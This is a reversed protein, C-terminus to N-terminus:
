EREKRERVLRKNLAQRSIGLMSAAIGQNNEARRMAENIFLHEAQKLSPLKDPFLESFTKIGIQLDNISFNEEGIIEKFSRLSLVNSQNRAVADFTMTELERVNGPFSYTNLLIYLQPPILPQKKKLSKSALKVFHTLLLALDNKREQLTPLTIQHARLRFYLDKRFTNNQIAENLDSNTAVVIRATSHQLVDSGLPYYSRDQLLRLLKIQSSLDLDGIEDLFLTGEAAKSILGERKQDAGTFAGKVHGFLTDTFVTDDLGAVNVAVFDGERKSSLHVARAFLEKGTGTKGTILVSQDSTSIAEIYQFLARVKKEQTIIHEFASKDSLENNLLRNKLKSLEGKLNSIEIARHISSTLRSKEIPKVLYDFAGAQMCKIATELGDHATIIIISIEPFDKKIKELLQSGSQHPMQLDLLIVAVEQRHLLPMVERSDTLSIVKQMGASRLLLSTGQVIQKDDDVILIPMNSSIPATM